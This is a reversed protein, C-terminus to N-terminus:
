YYGSECDGPCLLESPLEVAARLIRLADTGKVNGDRDADCQTVPCEANAVSAMLAFRADSATVNGDRNPDGCLDAVFPGRDPPCPWSTCDVLSPCVVPTEMLQGDRDRAEHISLGFAVDDLQPPCEFHFFGASCTAVVGPGSFGVPFGEAVYDGSFLREITVGPVPSTCDSFRVISFRLYSIEVPDYLKLDVACLFNGAMTTSTIGVLDEAIGVRAAKGNPPGKFGIVLVAALLASPAACRRLSREM